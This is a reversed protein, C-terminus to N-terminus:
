EAAETVAETVEEAATDAATDVTDTVTPTNLAEDFNMYEEYGDWFMITGRGLWLKYKQCLEDYIKCADKNEKFPTGDDAFYLTMTKETM